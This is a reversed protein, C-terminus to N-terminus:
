LCSSLIDNISNHPWMKINLQGIVGTKKFFATGSAYAIMIGRGLGAKSVQANVETSPASPVRNEALVSVGGIVINGGAGGLVEVTIFVGLFGLVRVQVAKALANRRGAAGRGNSARGGGGGGGEAAPDDAGSGSAATPHGPNPDRNELDHGGPGGGEGGRATHADSSGPEGAITEVRRWDIAAQM